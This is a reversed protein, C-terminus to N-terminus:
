KASGRLGLSSSTTPAPIFSLPEHEYQPGTTAQAQVWARVSALGTSKFILSGRKGMYRNMCEVLLQAVRWICACVQGMDWGGIGYGSIRSM